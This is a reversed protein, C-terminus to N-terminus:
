CYICIVSILCSGASPSCISVPRRCLEMFIPAVSCKLCPTRTSHELPLALRRDIMCSRGPPPSRWRQDCEPLHQHVCLPCSLGLSPLQCTVNRELFGLWGRSGPATNQQTDAGGCLCTLLIIWLSQQKQRHFELSHIELHPWQVNSTEFANGIFFLNVMWFNVMWPHQITKQESFFRYISSLHQFFRYISTKLVNNAELFTHLM